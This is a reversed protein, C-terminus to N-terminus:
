KILGINTLAEKAKQLAESSLELTPKVQNHKLWHQTVETTLGFRRATEFCVREEDAFFEAAKQGVTKIMENFDDKIDTYRDRHAAFTFACWPPTYVDIKALRGKSCAPATMTEEWLFLDINKDDFADLAGAYNKIVHWRDDSDTTQIKYDNLLSVAMMHSGSGFRSIGIRAEALMDKNLIWESSPAHVGWRLPTTTYHGIPIFDDSEACLRSVGETLMLAVDTEGAILKQTMAGTGGPVNEYCWNQGRDHQESLLMLPLNFHEPVGVVRFM